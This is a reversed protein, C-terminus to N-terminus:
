ASKTTKTWADADLDVGNRRKLDMEIANDLIHVKAARIMMGEDTTDVPKMEGEEMEARVESVDSGERLERFEALLSPGVIDVDRIEVRPLVRAQRGQLSPLDMYYGGLVEDKVTFAPTGTFVVVPNVRARQQKAAALAVLAARAPQHVSPPNKQPAPAATRTPRPRSPAPSPTPQVPAPRRQEGRSRDTVASTTPYRPQNRAPTTSQPQAARRAADM